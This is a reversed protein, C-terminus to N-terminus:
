AHHHTYIATPQAETSPSKFVSSVSSVSSFLPQHSSVAKATICSTTCLFTKPQAESAPTKFVSPLSSVSTFFPQHSSFVKPIVWSTTCLIIPETEGRRAGSLSRWCRRGFPETGEAGVAAPRPVSMQRQQKYLLNRGQCTTPAVTFIGGRRQPLGMEDTQLAGNLM